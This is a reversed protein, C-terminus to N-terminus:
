GLIARVTRVPAISTSVKVWVEGFVHRNLSIPLLGHPCDENHSLLIPIFKLWQKAPEHIEYAAPIPTDSRATERANSLQEFVVFKGVQDDHELTPRFLIGVAFDM